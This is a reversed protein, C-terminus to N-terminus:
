KTVRGTLVFHIEGPILHTQTYFKDGALLSAHTFIIELKYKKTAHHYPETTTVPPGIGLAV